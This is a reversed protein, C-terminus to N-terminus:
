RLRWFFFFLFCTNRISTFSHTITTISPPQGFFTFLTVEPNGYYKKGTVVFLAPVSFVAWQGSVVSWQSRLWVVFSSRGVGRNM